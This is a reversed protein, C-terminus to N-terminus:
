NTMLFKECVQIVSRLKNVNAWGTLRAESSFSLLINLYEM